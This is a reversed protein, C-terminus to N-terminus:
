DFSLLVYCLSVINFYIYFLLCLIVFFVIMCRYIMPVHFFLFFFGSYFLFLFFIRPVMDVSFLTCDLYRVVEVVSAAAGAAVMELVARLMNTCIVGNLSPKLCSQVPLLSSTLLAIVGNKETEKCIM